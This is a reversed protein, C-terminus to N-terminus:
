APDRGVAPAVAFRAGVRLAMACPPMRKQQMSQPRLVRLTPWRIAESSLTGPHRFAHDGRHSVDHRALTQHNMFVAGMAGARTERRRLIESDRASKVFADANGRAKEGGAGAEIRRVLDFAGEEVGIVPELRVHDRYGAPLCM